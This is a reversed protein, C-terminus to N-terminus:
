IREVMKVGESTISVFKQGTYETLNSSVDHVRLLNEGQLKMLNNYFSARFIKVRRVSQLVKKYETRLGYPLLWSEDEDEKVPEFGKNKSYEKAVSLALEELDVYNKNNDQLKKLQVLILQQFDSLQTAPWAPSMRRFVPNLWYLYNM